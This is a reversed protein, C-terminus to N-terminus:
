AYGLDIAVDAGLEQYNDLDLEVITRHEGQAFVLRIKDGEVQELGVYKVNPAM